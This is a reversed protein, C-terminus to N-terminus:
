AWHTVLHTKVAMVKHNWPLPPACPWEKRPVEDAVHLGKLKAHKLVTDQKFGNGWVIPEFRDIEFVHIEVDLNTLCVPPKQSEAVQSHRLFVKSQWETQGKGWPCKCLTNFGGYSGKQPSVNECM